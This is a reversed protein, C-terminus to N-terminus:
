WIHDAFIQPIKRDGVIPLIDQPTFIDLLAKRLNALQERIAGLQERPPTEELLSAVSHGVPESWREDLPVAAITPRLATYFAQGKSSDADNLGKYEHMVKSFKEPDQVLPLRNSRVAGSIANLLTYKGELLLTLKSYADGDIVQLEASFQDLLGSILYFNQLQRKVLAELHGDPPVSASDGEENIRRDLRALTSDIKDIIVEGLIAAENILIYVQFLEAGIHSLHKKQHNRAAAPIVKMAIELLMKLAEFM